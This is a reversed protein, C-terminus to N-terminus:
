GVRPAPGFRFMRASAGRRRSHAGFTTLELSASLSDRSDAPVSWRSMAWFCAFCAAPQIPPGDSQSLSMLAHLQTRNGGQNSLRRRAM